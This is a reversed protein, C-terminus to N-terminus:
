DKRVCVERLKPDLKMKGEEMEAGKIYEAEKINVMKTYKNCNKHIKIRNKCYTSIIKTFM